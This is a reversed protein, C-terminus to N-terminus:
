PIFSYFSIRKNFRCSSDIIASEWIFIKPINKFYQKISCAKFNEQFWYAWYTAYDISNDLAARAQFFRLADAFRANGRIDAAKEENRNDPDAM